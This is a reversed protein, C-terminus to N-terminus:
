ASFYQSASPIAADYPEALVACAVWWGTGHAGPTGSPPVYRTYTVFASAVWTYGTSAKLVCGQSEWTSEPLTPQSPCLYLFLAVQVTGGSEDCFRFKAIAGGAGASYHPSDMAVTCITDPVIAAAAPTSTGVFAAPVALVLAAILTPRYSAKSLRPVVPREIM